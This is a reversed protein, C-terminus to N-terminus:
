GVVRYRARCCAFCTPGSNNGYWWSHEKLSRWLADTHVLDKGILLPTIGQIIAKTALSAEVFQTISEGWGVQGDDGQVRVLCLHRETNCDSPEPYAVPIAEISSIRVNM